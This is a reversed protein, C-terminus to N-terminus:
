NIREYAIGDETTYFINKIGIDKIANMCAPCPRSFGLGNKLGPAIRAIYINAKSWNVQIGIPYPVKNLALIEAHTKHQVLNHHNFHRYKNYKKQAPSTKDVNHAMSIIHRKYTIVCGTKFQHFTSQGAVKIARSLMRIDFNNIRSDESVSLHPEM